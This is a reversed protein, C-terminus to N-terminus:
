MTLNPQWIPHPKATSNVFAIPRSLTTNKKKLLDIWLLCRDGTKSWDLGAYGSKLVMRRAKMMDHLWQSETKVTPDKMKEFIAKWTDAVDWYRCDGHNLSCDVIWGKALSTTLIPGSRNACPGTKACFHAASEWNLDIFAEWVAQRWSRDTNQLGALDGEIHDLHTRGDVIYKSYDAKAKTHDGNVHALGELGKVCGGKARKLADHYKLLPHTPDIRALHEFVRLLSGTGTTAGFITTTFGRTGHDDGWEIYNYYDAWRSSGNEPLSVLSMIVDINDVTLGLLNHIRTAADLPVNSPPDNKGVQTQFLWPHKQLLSKFDAIFGETTM